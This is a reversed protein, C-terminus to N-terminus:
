STPSGIAYERFTIVEQGIMDNLEKLTEQLPDLENAVFVSAAKQVDGFGSANNPMVGLLAPPVRHAALIDDRTANKITVFDDKAAVESIPILNVSDKTGTPSHLYFNRFNGIGKSKELADQIADQDEQTFDAGTTYLIFGAHSGNLYYRLRFTTAEKNLKISDLAGLYDPEGYVDQELGPQMLHYPATSFEQELGSRPVWYYTELDTGRRTYRARAVDLRLLGGLRNYVPEIYCNGFTLFDLALASFQQRTLLKHPIFSRVLINRKVQIASGSHATARYAQALLTMNFPMEFWRGGVPWLGTQVLDYATNIPVAEGFTFSRVSAKDTAQQDHTM